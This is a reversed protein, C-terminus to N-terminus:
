KAPDMIIKVVNGDSVIKQAFERVREPTINKIVAEYDTNWDEGWANYNQMLTLWVGNNKMADPRTKLWYSLNKDVEARNPGNEAMKRLEDDVIQALEDAMEPNTKFSVSMTYAQVPLRSLSGNVTVGYSGGKDERITELYRTQLCSSLMAMLLTNEQNYAIDGTYNYFVTSQPTQMPVEFRKKTEGKHARVMDDHWSLKQTGVPLSGLYKEVWPQLQNLDIDGLFYFTYNGAADCFFQNYIDDMRDFDIADLTKVTPPQTRVNDEEGYIAVNMKEQFIYDVSTKTLEIKRRSTQMMRDFKDRSMKPNTFYLYTLQLMTEVDSKAAGGSIGTSFRSITPTAMAVKTGIVKKLDIVDFDGLGSMNILPILNQTTFYDADDVMSLGGDAYASMSVQSPSYNTPKVFVKIGNNLTWETSGYIGEETKVVKGPIISEEDSILPKDIVKIEYPKLETGRVKAMISAMQETTPVVLGVEEPVLTVLVNNSQSLLVSLLENVEELKMQSVLLQLVAWEHKASLVPKNKSYHNICEWVYSENDRRSANEFGYKASRLISTKFTELEPATFGYRRIRELETYAAEFALPLNEKASSVHLGVAETTSSVPNNVLQAGRFPAVAQAMETFRMNAMSLAANLLLDMKYVGVRNNYEVPFAERKIYLSASSETFEPDTIVTMLPETNGPIPIIAKPEPNTPAPIDAMMNKIKEAVQEVDIDGVIIIAQLDPRYWRHYYDRLQQSSFTKLFEETGLMDRDAYRTHNYFVPAAKRSARFSANNRQRREENIVGREKDIEEDELSIFHSWDHLILLTSDIISERKLPVQSLMYYTMEMGTAANINTGFQLGVSELWSIMSKGPFNKTGNFAMHELFHALGDQSDEEQISGVNHLIYFDALGKQSENHRLYYTLGNKLKGVKVEPDFPLTDAMNLQQACMSTVGLILSVMGAIIRKIIM